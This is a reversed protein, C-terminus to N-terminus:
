VAIGVDHVSIGRDHVGIGIMPFFHGRDRRFRQGRDIPIVTWSRNSHTDVIPRFICPANDQNGAAQQLEKFLRRAIFRWGPRKSKPIVSNPAFYYQNYADSLFEETESRIDELDRHVPEM